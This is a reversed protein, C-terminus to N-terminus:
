FDNRLRPSPSAQDLMEWPIGEGWPFSLKGDRAAMSADGSKVEVGGHLAPIGERLCCMSALVSTKREAGCANFREVLGAALINQAANGDRDQEAGCASCRWSCVSLPKKGDRHGCVSCTQSTLEEWRSIIKVQRGYLRAKAELLTRLLRWGADAIARAPKRNKVMGSGNLEELVVTPNGRILRSSLKHLHDLRQDAVQVPAKAM